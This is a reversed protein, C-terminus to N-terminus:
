RTNKGDIWYKEIWLCECSARTLYIGHFTYFNAVCDQFRNNYPMLTSFWMNYVISCFSFAFNHITMMKSSIRLESSAYSNKNQILRLSKQLSVCFSAPRQSLLSWYSHMLMRNVSFISLHNQFYVNRADHYNSYPKHHICNLLVNLLCVYEIFIRNKYYVNLIYGQVKM